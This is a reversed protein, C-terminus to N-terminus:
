CPHNPPYGTKQFGGNQHPTSVGTCPIPDVVIPEGRHTERSIPNWSNLIPNTELILLLSLCVCSDVKLVCLFSRCDSLGLGLRFINKNRAKPTALSRCVSYMLEISLSLHKCGCKTSFLNHIKTLGRYEPAEKTMIHQLQVKVVHFTNDM